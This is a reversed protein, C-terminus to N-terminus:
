GQVAELYGVLWKGKFVRGDRAEVRNYRVRLDDRNRELYQHCRVIEGDPMVWGDQLLARRASFEAFPTLTALYNNLM